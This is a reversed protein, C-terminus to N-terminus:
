AGTYDDYDTDNHTEDWHILTNTLNDSLERAYRLAATFDASTKLVTHYTMFSTAGISTVDSSNKARHTKVASGYAAHGGKSCTRGPIDELFWPLYHLFVHNVPRGHVLTVNCPECLTGNDVVSVTTFCLMTM